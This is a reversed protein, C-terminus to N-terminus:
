YAAVAIDTLGFDTGKFLLEEGTEKALAYAMCDGFTLRAPHRGKGFRRFAERALLAQSESFPVLALKFRLILLDLDRVGDGGKRSHLIMSAELLSAASMKPNASRLIVIDLRHGEPEELLIALMASSDVIVFSARKRGM